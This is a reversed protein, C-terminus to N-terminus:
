ANRRTRRLENALMHAERAAASWPIGKTAKSMNAIHEPSLKRGLRQKSLKEKTEKTHPRGPRGKRTARMKAKTEESAKRGRNKKAIKEAHEPTRPCIRGTLSKSLKARTEESAKRGIQWSSMKARTEKNPRVGDGGTTSNYGFTRRHSALLWVFFREAKNATDLDPCECLTEVKFKDEGHKRIANYLYTNRASKSNMSKALIKHRKWRRETNWSTQGVYRKNNVINTILYV